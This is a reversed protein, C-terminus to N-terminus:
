SHTALCNCGTTSCTKARHAPRPGRSDAFPSLSDDDVAFWGWCRESPNGTTDNLGYGNAM